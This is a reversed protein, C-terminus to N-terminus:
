DRVVGGTQPRGFPSTNSAASEQHRRRQEERLLDIADQFNAGPQASVALPESRPVLAISRTALEGTAQGVQQAHLVAARATAQMPSTHARLSDLDRHTQWDDVALAALVAVAAGWRLRSVQVSRGRHMFAARRRGSDRLTKPQLARATSSACGRESAAGERNGAGVGCGQALITAFVAASHSTADPGGMDNARTALTASLEHFFPARPDPPNEAEAM